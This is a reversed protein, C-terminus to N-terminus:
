ELFSLKSETEIRLKNKTLIKKFLMESGNIESPCHIGAPISDAGMLHELFLTVISATLGYMDNGTLSFCFKKGDLNKAYLIIEFYQKKREEPNPGNNVRKKSLEIIQGLEQRQHNNTVAFRAIKQNTLIYTCSNQPSFLRDFFLIDPYPAYLVADMEPRNPYSVRKSFSSIMSEKLLHNEVLYVPFHQSVLMSLRTGSSPRSKDFFYTASIDKWVEDSPLCSRALLDTLASEFSVSHFVSAGNKVAEEDLNAFSNRIFYQEGCIDIYCKGAKICQELVRIGYINFPGICNIIVDFDPVISELEGFSEPSIRFIQNVLNYNSKLNVLKELNRGAISFQVSADSLKAVILAATYGYAGLLLINNIKPM